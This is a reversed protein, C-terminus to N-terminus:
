LALYYSLSGFTYNLRFKLFEDERSELDGWYQLLTWFQTLLFNAGSEEGVFQVLCAIEFNNRGEERKKGWGFVM